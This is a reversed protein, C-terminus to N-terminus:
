HDGHPESEGRLHADCCWAGRCRLRHFLHRNFLSGHDRGLAGRPIHGGRGPDAQRLFAEGAIMADRAIDASKEAAAISDKMDRAQSVSARWTVIWLGITSISLWLTFFAVPDTTTKDWLSKCDEAKGGSRTAIEECRRKESDTPAYSAQWGLVGIWLVTALLFGLAIQPNLAKWM